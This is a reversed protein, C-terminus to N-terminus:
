SSTQNKWAELKQKSEQIRFRLANMVSIYDDEGVYSLSYRSANYAYSYRNLIRAVIDIVKELQDRQVSIKMRKINFGRDIHALRKDRWVKIKKIVLQQNELESRHRQIDEFTIPTHSEVLSDYFQNERMRQQFDQISFINRNQEVYNLFKWISLSDEHKDLIRALTLIANDLHSKITFRFFYKAQNLETLYNKTCDTLNQWLKLHDRAHLVESILREYYESFLEGAESPQLESSSM